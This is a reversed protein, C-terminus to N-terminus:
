LFSKLLLFLTLTDFKTFYSSIIFFNNKQSRHERRIKNQFRIKVYYNKTTWFKLWLDFIWKRVFREKVSLTNELFFTYWMILFLGTPLFAQWLENDNNNAYFCVYVPLFYIENDDHNAHLFIRKINRAGACGGIIILNTPTIIWVHGLEFFHIYICSLTSLWKQPCIKQHVYFDGNEWTVGFERLLYDLRKRLFKKFFLKFDVIVRVM